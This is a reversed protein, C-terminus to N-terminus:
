KHRELGARQGAASTLCIFVAIWSDLRSCFWSRYEPKSYPLLLRHLRLLLPLALRLFLLLGHLRLLLLLGICPQRIILRILGYFSRILGHLLGHYAAEFRLLLGSQQASQM